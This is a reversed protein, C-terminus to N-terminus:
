AVNAEHAYSVGASSAKGRDASSTKSVPMAMLLGAVGHHREWITSGEYSAGVLIRYSHPMDISRSPLIECLFDNLLSTAMLLNRDRVVHSEWITFGDWEGTMSVLHYTSQRWRTNLLLFSRQIM